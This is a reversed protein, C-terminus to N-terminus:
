SKKTHKKRYHKSDYLRYVSSNRVIEEIKPTSYIVQWDVEIRNMIKKDTTYVFIVVSGHTFNIDVSVIVNPPLDLTTLYSPAM